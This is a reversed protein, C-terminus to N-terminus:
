ALAVLNKGEGKARYLAKDAAGLLADWDKADPGYSAVGFSATIRLGDWESWEHEAIRLRLREALRRAASKETEPLLLLFEEGGFRAAIDHSRMQQHLLAAVGQLVADGAQHGHTDNVAKFDDIDFMVLALPRGFRQALALRSAAAEMLARRNLLGTLADLRALDRLRMEYRQMSMWAISFASILLFLLYAFLSLSQVPGAQAYDPGPPLLALAPIKCLAVLAAAACIGMATRRSALPPERPDQRLVLACKGLLLMMMLSMFVIRLSIDDHVASLLHQVLVTLGILAYGLWSPLDRGGTFRALGRVLRVLGAVILANALVISLPDPVLGRLAILGSGIGLLIYALGMQRYGGFIGRLSAFLLMGAGILLATATIVATLTPIDLSM